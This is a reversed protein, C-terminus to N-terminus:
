DIFKVQQHLEMYRAVLSQWQKSVAEFNPGEEYLARNNNMEIHIFGLITDMREVVARGESFHVFPSNGAFIAVKTASELFRNMLVLQALSYNLLATLHPLKQEFYVSEALSLAPVLNGLHASMRGFHWNM